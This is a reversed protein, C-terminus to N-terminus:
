RVVCTAPPALIGEDPIIDLVQRRHELLILGVSTGDNVRFDDGFDRSLTVLSTAASALGTRLQLVLATARSADDVHPPLSNPFLAKIHDAAQAILETSRALAELCDLVDPLQPAHDRHAYKCLFDLRDLDDTGLKTWVAELRFQADLPLPIPDPETAWAPEDDTADHRSSSPRELEYEVDHDGALARVAAALTSTPDPAAQPPEEEDDPLTGLSVQQTRLVGAVALLGLPQAHWAPMPSELTSDSDIAALEAVVQFVMDNPHGMSAPTQLVLRLEDLAARLDVDTGAINAASFAAFPAPPRLRLVVDSADDTDDLQMFPMPQFVLLNQNKPTVVQVPRFRLHRISSPPDSLTTLADKFYQPVPYDEFITNGPTHQVLMSRMISVLYRERIPRDRPAPADSDAQPRARARYDSSWGKLDQTFKPLEVHRAPRPTCAAKKKPPPRPAITIQADCEVDEDKEVTESTSAATAARAEFERQLLEPDLLARLKKELDLRTLKGRLSESIGRRAGQTAEGLSQLRGRLEEQMRGRVEDMQHAPMGDRTLHKTVAKLVEDIPDTVNQAPAAAVAEKRPSVAALPAIPVSCLGLPRAM